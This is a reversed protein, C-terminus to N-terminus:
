SMLVDFLSSQIRNQRSTTITRRWDNTLCDLAYSGACFAPVMGNAELPDNVFAIM